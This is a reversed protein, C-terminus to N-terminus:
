GDIGLQVSFVIDFASNNILQLRDTGSALPVWKAYAQPDFLKLTGGQGQGVQAGQNLIPTNQFVGAIPAPAVCIFTSVAGINEPLPVFINTGATVTFALGTAPDFLDLSPPQQISPRSGHAVSSTVIYPVNSNYNPFGGVVTTDFIQVAVADAIGTVSTGNTISVLRQVPQGDVNWAILARARNSMKTVTPNKAVTIGFQCTFEGPNEFIQQVGPSPQPNGTLMPSTFSLSKGGIRKRPISPTNM